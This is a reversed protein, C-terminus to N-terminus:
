RQKTVTDLEKKHTSTKMTSLSCPVVAKMVTRFIMDGYKPKVGILYVQFGVQSTNYKNSSILPHLIYGPGRVTAGASLSLYSLM